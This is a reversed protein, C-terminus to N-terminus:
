DYVDLDIRYLMEEAFHQRAMGDAPKLQQV